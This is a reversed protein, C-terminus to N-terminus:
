DPRKGYVEDIIKRVDSAEKEKLKYYPHHPPFIVEQKGPNFRFMEASNKGKKNPENTAEKGQEIATKSDSEPYKAKRVQVVTCRCRWGNPPYYNNWFPDSPPLTTNHLVRHSARVQDDNATRYQLNYRDGEKEYEKWKAAMQSSQTAFIYEAKLYNKNYSEDIREIDKFFKDFSKIQGSEDRLLTSAEKLSQYSKFGSFVFVDKELHQAMVKPIVADQLAPKIAETFIRAHEQILQQVPEEKLLEPSIDKNDFLKQIAKKFLGSKFVPTKDKGNSLKAFSLGYM